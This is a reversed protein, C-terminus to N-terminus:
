VKTPKEISRALETRGRPPPRAAPAAAPAPRQARPSPRAPGPRCPRRAAQRPTSALVGSESKSLLTSLFPTAPPSPSPGPPGPGRRAGRGTAAAGRPPAPRAGRRSLPPRPFHAGCRQPASRRSTTLWVGTQPRLFSLWRSIGTTKEDVREGYATKGWM